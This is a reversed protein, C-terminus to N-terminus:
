RVVEDTLPACPRGEGASHRDDAYSAAIGRGRYAQRGPNLRGPRGFDVQNLLVAQEPKWRAADSNRVRM